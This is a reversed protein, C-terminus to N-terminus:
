PNAIALATSGSPPTNTWYGGVEIPDGKYIDLIPCIAGVPDTAVELGASTASPTFRQSVEDFSGDVYGGAANDADGAEFACDAAVVNARVNYIRAPWVGSSSEDGTITVKWTGIPTVTTAGAIPNTCGSSTLTGLSGGEAGYARSSGPSTITGSLDFTTCTLTQGSPQATFSVGTGVFKAGPGGSPTYTTAAQAATTSMALVTTAAAATAMAGTALRHPFKKM